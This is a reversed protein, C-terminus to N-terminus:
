VADMPRLSVANISPPMTSMLQDAISAIKTISSDLWAELAFRVNPPFHQLFIQMLLAEDTTTTAKPGLLRQLYCLYQSRTQDGVDGPAFFHQLCTTKSPAFRKM